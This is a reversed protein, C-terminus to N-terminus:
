KGRWSVGERGGGGRYTDRGRGERKRGREERRERESNSGSEGGVRWAASHAARITRLTGSRMSTKTGVM